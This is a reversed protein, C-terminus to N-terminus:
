ASPQASNFVAWGVFIAYGSMLGLLCGVGVPVVVLRRRLVSGATAVILISCVVSLGAWENFDKTYFVGRGRSMDNVVFWVALSALAQIAFAGLILWSPRAGARTIVHRSMPVLTAETSWSTQEVPM